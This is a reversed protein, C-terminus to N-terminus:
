SAQSLKEKNSRNAIQCSVLMQIAKIKRDNGAYGAYVAYGAYDAYGAYGAYGGYGAYGAYGACGACGAVALTAAYCRVLTCYSASVSQWM